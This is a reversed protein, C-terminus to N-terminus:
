EPTFTVNDYSGGFDLRYPQSVQDFNESIVTYTILYQGAELDPIQYEPETSSSPSERFEIINKDHNVFFAPVKATKQPLIHKPQPEVAGSWLLEVNPSYIEQGSVVNVISLVYVLCNRAYQNRHNNRVPLHYWDIMDHYTDASQINKATIPPELSLENRWRPNWARTYKSLKTTFDSRDQFHIPKAMIYESVGERKVAEQHFVLSEIQQFAAIALEQNVFLSGRCTGDDLPERKPDIFVAYESTRLHRFINETLGELNQVAEALYTKFGRKQLHKQCAFGLSKETDDHQGCSIFVRAQPFALEAIPYSLNITPNTM